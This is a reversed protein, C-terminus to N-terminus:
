PNMASSKVITRLSPSTSGYGFGSVILLCVSCATFVGNSVRRSRAVSPRWLRSCEREPRRKANKRVRVPRGTAVTLM